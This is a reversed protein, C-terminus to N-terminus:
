SIRRRLALLGGLLGMGCLALSAPEPVPGVSIDTYDVTVGTGNGNIILGLRYYTEANPDTGYATFPVTVTGSFVGGTAIQAGNLSPEYSSPTGTQAYWGSGTNVYSSLQLYTSGSFNATNIYYNYMLQYGAPNLIAAQMAQYFATGTNGTAYNGVQYGGLPLAIYNQGAITVVNAAPSSGFGSNAWGDSTNDAFNFLVSAGLAQVAGLVLAATGIGLSILINKKM